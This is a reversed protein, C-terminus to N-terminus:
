GGVQYGVVVYSNISYLSASFDEGLVSELCLQNILRELAERELLWEGGGTDTNPGGQGQKVKVRKRQEKVFAEALARHTIRGKEKACAARVLAVVAKAAGTVEVKKVMVEGACVDCMGGCGGGEAPLREGLARALPQRRCQSSQQAYETM